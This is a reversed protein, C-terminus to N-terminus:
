HNTVPFLAALISRILWHGDEQQRLTETFTSGTGLTQAWGTARM